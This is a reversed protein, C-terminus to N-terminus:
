TVERQGVESGTSPDFSIDSDLITINQKAKNTASYKKKRNRFRYSNTTKKFSYCHGFQRAFILDLSDYDITETRNDESSAGNRAFHVGGGEDALDVRKTRIVFNGELDVSGALHRWSVLAARPDAHLEVIALGVADDLVRLTAYLRQRLDVVDVHISMEGFLLLDFRFSETKEGFVSEVKRVKTGDPDIVRLEVELVALQGNGVEHLPKNDFHHALIEHDGSQVSHSVAIKGRLFVILELRRDVLMEDVDKAFLLEHEGIVVGRKDVDIDAAEDIAKPLCGLIKGVRDVLNEILVWLELLVTKTKLFREESRHLVLPDDIFPECCAFFSTLGVGFLQHHKKRADNGNKPYRAVENALLEELSICCFSRKKKFIRRSKTM